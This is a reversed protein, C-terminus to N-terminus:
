MGVSTVSQVSQKRFELPSCGKMQNFLRDFTTISSFGVTYATESITYAPNMLLMEAKKIRYDNLYRHFNKETVEKFLRSFYNQSFGSVDSVDKLRIDEMYNNEIYELSKGIKAYGMIRNRVNIPDIQDATRRFLLALIDLIRASYYLEDNHKGTKWETLIKNIEAEMKSNMDDGSRVSIHCVTNLKALFKTCCYLSPFEFNIIIRTGPRNDNCFQHICGSPIFLIDKEKLTYRTSDVMVSFDNKVIYILEVANHWHPPYVFGHIKNVILRFPFDTTFIEKEHLNEIKVIDEKGSEKFKLM